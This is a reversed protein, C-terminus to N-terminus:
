KFKINLKEFFVLVLLVILFDSFINKKFVLKEIHVKFTNMSFLKKNRKKIGPYHTRIRM